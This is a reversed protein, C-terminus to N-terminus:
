QSIPTDSPHGEEIQDGYENNLANSSVFRDFSRVYSQQKFPDVDLMGLADEDALNVESKVVENAEPCLNLGIHALLAMERDNVKNDRYDKVLRIIDPREFFQQLCEISAKEVGAGKYLRYREDEFRESHTKDIWGVDKSIDIQRLRYLLTKERKSLLVQILAKLYRQNRIFQIVDMEEQIKDFSAMFTKHRKYRARFM